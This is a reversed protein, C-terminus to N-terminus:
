ETYTPQEISVALFKGRENISLAEADGLPGSGKSPSQPAEAGAGSQPVETESRRHRGQKRVRAVGSLM